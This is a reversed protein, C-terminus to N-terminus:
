EHSEMLILTFTVIRIFFNIVVGESIVRFNSWQCIGQDAKNLSMWSIGLTDCFSRVATVDNQDLKLITEKTSKDLSLPHDQNWQLVPNLDGRLDETAKGYGQVSPDGNCHM